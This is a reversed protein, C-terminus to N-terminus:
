AIQVEDKIVKELINTAYYHDSLKRSSFKNSDYPVEYLLYKQVILPIFDPFVQGEPMEHEALAFYTEEDATKFCDIEWLYKEEDKVCNLNYRVKKHRDFACDWLEKFDRSNIENEIELTRVLKKNGQSYIKQKFCLERKVFDTNLYVSERIRLTLGFRNALYGQNIKIIEDCNRSFDEEADKNVVYKRENETPM